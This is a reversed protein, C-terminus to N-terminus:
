LLPMVPVLPDFRLIKKQDIKQGQGVKQSVIVKLSHGLVPVRDRVNNMAITLHELDLLHPVMVVLSFTIFSLDRRRGNAIRQFQFLQFYNCM